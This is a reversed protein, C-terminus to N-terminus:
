TAGCAASGALRRKRAASAARPPTCPKEAAARGPQERACIGGMAGAARVCDQASSFVCIPNDRDFDRRCWTEAGASGSPMLVIAGAALLLAKLLFRSRPLSQAHMANM